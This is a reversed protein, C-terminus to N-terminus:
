AQTRETTPLAARLKALARSALTKVTGPSVGMAAAIEAETWDQQYRLVMVTRQRASLGALLMELAEQQESPRQRAAGPPEPLVDVLDEAVRRRRFRSLNATVIARRVYAEPADPSRRRTALYTKVLATQVLDEAHGLDGTLAYAFRVLAPLRSAVFADFEQVPWGAVRVV